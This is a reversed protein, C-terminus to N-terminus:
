AIRLAQRTAIDIQGTVPLHGISQFWRIARETKLEAVGDITTSGM